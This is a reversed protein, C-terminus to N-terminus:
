TIYLVCFSIPFYIVQFSVREGKAGTMGPDGRDGKAGPQGREGPRGMEGKTGPEGKAGPTGSRLTQMGNGILSEKM